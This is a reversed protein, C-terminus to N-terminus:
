SKGWTYGISFVTIIYQPNKSDSEIKKRLRRINVSLTNEDVFNGDNDWLKQLLTNRTLVQGKNKVLLELLKFETATLNIITDDKRLEMKNFDIKINNYKYINEDIPAVRRLVALLRQKLLEISFPKSIYDDCGLKFGKIADEETDKATIFIIPVKSIKRIESCLLLGSKDPLNIDLLIIDPNSKFFLYLGEKYNYASITNYNEKELAFAIGKNLLADDEIILIKFM